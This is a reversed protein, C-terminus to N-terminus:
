EGYYRRVHIHRHLTAPSDRYCRGLHIYCRCGCESTSVLPRLLVSNPPPPFAKHSRPVHIYSSLYMSFYQWERELKRSTM